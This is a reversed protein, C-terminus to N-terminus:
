APTLLEVRYGSFVDGEQLPTFLLSRNELDFLRGVFFPSVVGQGPGITLNPQATYTPRVLATADVPTIGTASGSVVDRLCQTGVGRTSIYGFNMRIRGDPFLVAQFTNSTEPLGCIPVERWTVVVKESDSANVRVEGGIGPQLDLTLVAIRDAAGSLRDDNECPDPEGFTILGNTTVFMQTQARGYFPFPFPLAVAVFGDDTASATGCGGTFTEVRSGTASEFFPPTSPPAPVVTFPVRSSSREGGSELVIEGSVAGAPVVTVVRDLFQVAVRSQIEEPFVVRTDDLINDAEIEVLSGVAGSDPEISRIQAIDPDEFQDCGGLLLAAALIAPLHASRCTPM